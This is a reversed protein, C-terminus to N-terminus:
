VRMFRCYEITMKSKNTKEELNHRLSVSLVYTKNFYTNLNEQRGRTYKHFHKFACTPISSQICGDDPYGRDAIVLEVASLLPKVAQRFISVDTMDVHKFPGSVALMPSSLIRMAVEYRLALGNIKELHFSTVFLTPEQISYVTEDVSKYCQLARPSDVGVM